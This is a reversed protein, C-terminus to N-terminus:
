RMTRFRHVVADTYADLSGFEAIIRERDRQREAIAETHARRRQHEALTRRAGDLVALRDARFVHCVEVVDAKSPMRRHRDTLRRIAKTHLNAPCDAFVEALMMVFVDPSGVQPDPYAGMLLRVADTARHPGAPELLPPYTDAVRACLAEDVLSQNQAIPSKAASRLANEQADTLVSAVKTSGFIETM